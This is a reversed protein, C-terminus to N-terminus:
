SWKDLVIVTGARATTLTLALVALAGAILKAGKM